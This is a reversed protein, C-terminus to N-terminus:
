HCNQLKYNVITHLLFSLYFMSQKDSRGITRRTVAGMRAEFARKLYNSGQQNSLTNLRHISHYGSSYTYIYDPRQVNDLDTENDGVAPQQNEISISPDLNFVSSHSMVRKEFLDKLGGRSSLIDPDDYAHFIDVPM